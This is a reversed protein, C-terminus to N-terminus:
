PTWIIPSDCERLRRKVEKRIKPDSMIIDLERNLRAITKREFEDLEIGNKYKQEFQFIFGLSLIARNIIDDTTMKLLDDKVKIEEKLSVRVGSTASTSIDAM